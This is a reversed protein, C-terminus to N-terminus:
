VNAWIVNRLPITTEFVKYRYCQWDAPFASTSFSAWSSWAAVHTATTTDCTGSSDPKEYEASRAVIVLRIAKIKRSDQQTLPSAWAGTAEVWDTVTQSGTANTVGYQAKLTLIHPAIQFTNFAGDTKPELLELDTGTIRYTRSFLQSFCQIKAGNAKKYAPWNNATQYPVTPNHTQTGGPNHQLHFSSNQVQTIEMLTCQGLNDSVIALDGEECGYTSAVKLESSPQPMDESLSVNTFKFEQNAPNQYYRIWISDPGNGGDTIAVSSFLDSVPQGTLTSYSYTKAPNCKAALDNSIGWGAMKIDRDMMFLATAGNTQADSAGTTTRKQRESLTFVQFIIVSAIVGIVLGVMLEILGFGKTNRFGNM